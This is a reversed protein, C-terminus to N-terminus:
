LEAAVKRRSRRRRRFWVFGGIAGALVVFAVLGAVLLWKLTHAAGVRLPIPDTGEYKLLDLYLRREADPTGAEGPLFGHHVMWVGGPNAFFEQGGPGTYKEASVMWPEPLPKRCPGAVSDCLALGVSYKSSNWDNASYFLEYNSGVKVMSPGEVVDGEWPQDNTILENPPGVLSLGDASLQQSYIKTPLGESNGDAKWLLYPTAGDVFPSPDIAGGEDLPCIFPGTSDDVFPGEPASGLARSICEKRPQALGPSPAPTSYYLVFKGDPRAWVSPAWQFGKVTWSPLTPMADGLYDGNFADGILIRTVPVNATDTNTAYIFLAKPEALLFPDAFDGPFIPTGAILGGFLDLPVKRRNKPDPGIPGQTPLRQGPEALVTTPAASQGGPEASATPASLGWVAAAVLVLTSALVTRTTRSM